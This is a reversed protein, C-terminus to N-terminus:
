PSLNLNDENSKDSNSDCKNESKPDKSDHGHHTHAKILESNCCEEGGKGKLKCVTTHTNSHYKENCQGKGHNHDDEIAHSHSGGFTHLLM